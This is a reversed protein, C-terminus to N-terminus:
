LCNATVMAMLVTMEANLENVREGARLASRSRGCSAGFSQNVRPMFVTNPGKKRQNL